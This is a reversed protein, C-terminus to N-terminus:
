VCAFFFHYQYINCIYHVKPIFDLTPFYFYLIALNFFLIMSVLFHKKRSTISLFVVYAVIYIYNVSGEPGESYLWSLSLIALVTGIYFWILRKNYIRSLIYIYALLACSILISTNIFAPFQMTTNLITSLLAVTISIIISINFIRADVSIDSPNGFIINRVGNFFDNM